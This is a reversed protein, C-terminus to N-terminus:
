KVGGGTITFEATEGEPQSRHKIVKALRRGGTGAKELAIIAKCMHEMSRGGIPLLTGTEIETYVQNTIVVPIRYRRAMGQLEGLQATLTRRLTRNDDAELVLRYLSTASDVVVLGVGEAALRSVDRVATHQQELTMPEFVIIKSAIDRANTGAIQRFRDPSFGETDIYVVKYGRSVAQVSLQLVLNTKGTGSEGYLQTIIGAEFGGGLLRDIGGCGLPLRDITTM